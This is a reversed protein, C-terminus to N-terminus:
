LQFATRFVYKFHGYYLKVVEILVNTAQVDKDLMDVVFLKNNTSMVAAVCCATALLLSLAPLRLPGM